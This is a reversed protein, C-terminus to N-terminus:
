RRTPRTPGSLLGDIRRQFVEYPLSGAIFHGNIFFAPTGLSLHTDNAAAIDQQIRVTHRGETVAIRVTAANAGARQACRAMLEIDLSAQEEFVCRTFREFAQTGGQLFVEHAANAAPLANPHFPLPYHRYVLRLRNGYHARLQQVTADVRACFPCQLDTFYQIVIPANVPGASPTNPLTRVRHVTDFGDGQTDNPANTEGFNYSDAIEPVSDEAGQMTRAYLGTRTLGPTRRLLAQAETRAGDIIRVFIEEPQAGLLFRGNIFFVPTGQAHLREALQQDHTIRQAHSHEDLSRRFRALDLGATEAYRELDARELHQYNESLIDHFRWFGINGRQAFAEMSAEAALQAHDHFPLPNHKWVIRLDNGYRTRLSRLTSEARFCFPCQFDSFMVLTVLATAAGVTPSNELPVRYVGNAHERPQTPPAPREPEDPEGEVPNAVMAAYVTDRSSIARARELVSDIVSVFREVPQAGVLRTGNIFFTPTGMANLSTALAIDADISEAFTHEDLNRRFRALDVGVREAYSELNERSLNPQNDFLMDHFRWFAEPGGQDYVALAAEAAPRANNHFELPVNKWVIRLDNGYRTRLVRLTPEVRSCFPCQFDSFMVVTVLADSRGLVPSAGVPIREADRMPVVPQLAETHGRETAVAVM